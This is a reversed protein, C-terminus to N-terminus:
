KVPKLHMIEQLFLGTEKEVDDTNNRWYSSGLVHYGANPFDVKRKLADPTGLQNFMELMRVVSVVDDQHHADKYYYALFVPQTIKAFQAATMSANILRKLEVLAEIRYRTTWYNQAALPAEFTYYRDGVVARAIQLGWPQTLLFSKKDYLDINPSYLILGAVASDSGALLLSLTGGTSTSILIVKDGLQKGVAIAQKASEVYQEATFNLLPEKEALGHAYLRPLFLNCGYQDALHRHIPYAEAHSASFGHLYVIAYPTKQKHLSDAWVIRVENDKKVHRLQQESSQIKKELLELSPESQFLVPKTSLIYEDPCPGLVYVGVFLLLVAMTWKLYSM